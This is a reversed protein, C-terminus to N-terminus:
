EEEGGEDDEMWEDSYEPGSTVKSPPPKDPESAKPPAWDARAQHQLWALAYQPYIEERTERVEEVVRMRGDEGRELKKRIVKKKTGTFAKKICKEAQARTYARAEEITDLLDIYREDGSRGRQLWSYWTSRPVGCNLAATVPAEGAKIRRVIQGQLAPTLTTPRGM